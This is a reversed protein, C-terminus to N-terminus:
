ARWKYMWCFAPPALSTELLQKATEYLLVKYGCVSLLEGMASRFSADDDVVHVISASSIMRRDGQISAVYLM